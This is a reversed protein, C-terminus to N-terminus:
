PMSLLQGLHQMTASWSAWAVFAPAFPLYDFEDKSVTAHNSFPTTYDVSEAKVLEQPTLVRQVLKPSPGVGLASTGSGSCTGFILM